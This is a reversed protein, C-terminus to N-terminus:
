GKDKDLPDSRSVQKAINCPAERSGDKRSNRAGCLGTRTVNDDCIGAEGRGAAHRVGKTAEGRRAEHSHQTQIVM